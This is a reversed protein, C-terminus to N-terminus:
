ESDADQISNPAVTLNYTIDLFPAGGLSASLHITHSGPSLPALMLYVGDAAAPSVQGGSAYCVSSLPVPPSYCGALFTNIVNNPNNPLTYSFAPSQVRYPTNLIDSLGHVAQGDIVCALQSGQDVLSKAIAQLQDVSYTTPPCLSAACGTNDAWANFIPFFLAKGTPITCNRVLPAGGFTGALFWVSGSQGASCEATDFQPSATAPLSFVWQWWAASWQGYTKGYPHSNPPLVSPNNNVGQAQGATATLLALAATLALSALMKRNPISLNKMKTGKKILCM